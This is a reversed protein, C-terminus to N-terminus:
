TYCDSLSFHVWRVICYIILFFYTPDLVLFYCLVIGRDSSPTLIEWRSPPLHHFCAPFFPDGVVSGFTHPSSLTQLPSLLFLSPPPPQSVLSLLSSSLPLPIFLLPTPRWFVSFRNLRNWFRNLRNQTLRRLLLACFVTNVARFVQCDSLVSQLVSLASQAATLASQARVSPAVAL